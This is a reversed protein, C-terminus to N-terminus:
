AKNLYSNRATKKILFVLSSITKSNNIKTNKLSNIETKNSLNVNRTNM